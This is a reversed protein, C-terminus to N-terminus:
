SSGETGPPATGKLIKRIMDLLCKGCVHVTDGVWGMTVPGMTIGPVKRDVGCVRCLDLRVEVNVRSRGAMSM